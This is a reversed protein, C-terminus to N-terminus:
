LPGLYNPIMLHRAQHQETVSAKGDAIALVERLVDDQTANDTICVDVDDSSAFKRPGVKVVPILPCTAIASFMGITYIVLNCGAAAFGVLSIAASGPGAIMHLGVRPLADGFQLVSNIPRNGLRRLSARSKAELTGLGGVKNTPTPDPADPALTSLRNRVDGLAARILSSIRESAGRAAVSELEGVMDALETFAVAGGSSVIFDVVNGIVPNVTEASDVSSSSSRIGVRLVGLDVNTRCQSRLSQTLHEASRVGQLVASESDVANLLNLVDCPRGSERVGAFLRELEKQDPGIVLVAGVNPNTCMASRLRRVRELEEGVSLGGTPTLFCIATHVRATIRLAVDNALDSMSVVVVLNRFGVVGDERLYGSLAM